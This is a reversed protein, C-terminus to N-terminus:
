SIQNQYSIRRQHLYETSLLLVSLIPHLQLQLKAANRAIISFHLFIFTFCEDQGNNRTFKIKWDMLLVSQLICRSFGRSELIHASFLSMLAM